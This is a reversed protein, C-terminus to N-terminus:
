TQCLYVFHYTYFIVILPNEISDSGAPEPGRQNSGTPERKSFCSCSGATFGLRGTGRPSPPLLNMATQISPSCICFNWVPIMERPADCNSPTPLSAPGSAANLKQPRTPPYCNLSARSSWPSKVSAATSIKWQRGTVLAQIPVAVRCASHVCSRWVSIRPIKWLSNSLWCKFHRVVCDAVMCKRGGYCDKDVSPIKDEGNSIVVKTEQEKGVTNM